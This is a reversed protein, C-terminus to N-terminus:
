KSKVSDAKIVTQVPEFLQGQPAKGDAPASGQLSMVYFAVNRVDQQSMVKGWAPMGKEVVGTKITKYINKIDGGHIWYKDTLNPGITNGGGDARHCSGCNNGSFVLKGKSIIAEESNYVMNEEDIAEVPMSAKLIRAQEEAAVIEHKYEDGSLPFMPVVHYFFLYIAAWVISGYFLGKWWPPLHNDLERIGDFDHGLDIDKEQSVPVAANLRDWTKQWWSQPAVYAVGAKAAKEKQMEESLLDLVKKLYIVVVFVLIVTISVIALALYVPLMPSNFPDDWFTMPQGDERASAAFAIFTFITSMSLIKKM